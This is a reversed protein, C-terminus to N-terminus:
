LIRRWLHWRGNWLPVFLVFPYVLLYVLFGVFRRVPYFDVLFITWAYLQAFCVFSCEVLWWESLGVIFFFESRM